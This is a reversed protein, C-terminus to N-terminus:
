FGRSKKWVFKQIFRYSITKSIKCTKPGVSTIMSLTNPMLACITMQYRFKLTHTMLGPREPRLGLGSIERITTALDHLYSHWRSDAPLQVQVMSSCYTALDSVRPRGSPRGYKRDCCVIRPINPSSAIKATTIIVWSTPWLSEDFLQADSAM